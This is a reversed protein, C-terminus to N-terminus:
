DDVGDDVGEAALLHPLGELLDEAARLRQQEADSSPPLQPLPSTLALTPAPALLHESSFVTSPKCVTCESSQQMEYTCGHFWGHDNDDTISLQWCFICFWFGAREETGATVSQHHHDKNHGGVEMYRQMKVMLHQKAFQRGARAGLSRDPIQTHSQNSLEAGKGGWAAKVEQAQCQTKVVAWEGGEFFFASDSHRGAQRGSLQWDIISGHSKLCLFFFVFYILKTEPPLAERGPSRRM